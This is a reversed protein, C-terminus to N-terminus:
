RFFLGALRAAGEAIAHETPAGGALVGRIHNLEHAITMVADRESALGANQLTVLIRGTSGRILRGAADTSMFGFDKGAEYALQIMRMDIGAREAAAAAQGLTIQPKAAVGSAARFVRTATGSQGLVRLAVRGVGFGVLGSLCGGAASQLAGGITNKRGGLSNLAMDFVVNFAASGACAALWPVILGSPDTLNTPSNNAYGYLNMNGGGFGIPDESVFRSFVPHYYRARYFYLGDNDNERGTYQSTNNSATGTVTTEGYPSYTYSTQVVGASDALALTGGLADSLFARPTAGETRQFVEDVGLGTLINASPSAGTLEQV